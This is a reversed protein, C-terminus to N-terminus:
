LKSLPELDVSQAFNELLKAKANGSITVLVGNELPIALSAQKGGEEEIVLAARKGLRITHMRKDVTRKSALASVLDYFMPSDASSRLVLTTAGQHYERVLSLFGGMYNVQEKEPVAAEWGQPAEPLLRYTKEVGRDGILGAAYRLQNAAKDLEGKQYAKLGFEIAQEVDDSAFAPLAGITLLLCWLAAYKMKM